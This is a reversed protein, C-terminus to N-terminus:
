HHAPRPYHFGDWTNWFARMEEPTGLSVRVHTDMTPFRRGILINSKRFRGIVEESPHNTNMMVFNTHSDIPKLVRATAQNFFEQRVDLNKKVRDRVSETDELAASAVSAAIGNVSQSTTQARMREILRPSSIGYGVRLGALGYVGSFSRSVIVREDDIPNDIFSSYMSSQGAYHHYAEDILVYWNAPLKSIFSELDKRPTISATPNNPNCIYVLGISATVQKLMAELDHESHQTLPISLVETGISEAYQQLAEYTPSAQVLRKGSGLFATACAHLIECSGCGLLVQEPKVRHYGAIQEVLVGSQAFPYRNVTAMSSQMAAVVRASPGYVSENHNLLIPKDSQARSPYLVDAMSIASLPWHAAGGAFVGVGLTRLLNRRSVAM